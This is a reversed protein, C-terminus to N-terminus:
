TSTNKAMQHAHIFKVHNADAYSLSSTTYRAARREHLDGAHQDEGGAHRAREVVAVEVDHEDAVEHHPDPQDAEPQAAARWSGHAAADVAWRYAAPSDSHM